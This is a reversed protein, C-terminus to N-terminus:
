YPVIGNEITKLLSPNPVMLFAMELDELQVKRDDFIWTTSDLTIQFNVAGKIQIM